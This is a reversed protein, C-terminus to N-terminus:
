LWKKRKFWMLGLITSIISILIAVFFGFRSTEMGNVLNMGFLSAILTPFMIIMNLSTLLRMVKNMNNNIVNAYTDMTSDLINSYIQTTERAQNMEINVDEILEADLEDVPLRFKLKSLLTENGRISTAFYTLSDQLRALSVLDENDIQGGLNRKAKEILGNVQKLYKLYWVSASLFLRFVLDAADSFGEARRQQHNVFDVMMRAEQDCITIIVDGKLVVGLPITTYPTRSSVSKLHPIRLIIMLWGEDMDYRAREDADAVDTIFYDPMHLEDVLFRVDDEVPCTIQVWCGPQWEDIPTVGKKTNWFSRM